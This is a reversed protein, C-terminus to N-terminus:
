RQKAEPKPKNITKHEQPQATIGHQQTIDVHGTQISHFLNKCLRRRESPRGGLGNSLKDCGSPCHELIGFLASKPLCCLAIDVSKTSEAERNISCWPASSSMLSAPRTAFDRLFDHQRFRLKVELNDQSFQRPPAFQLHESSLLRCCNRLDLIESSALTSRANIIATSLVLNSVAMSPALPVMSLKLSSDLILFSIFPSAPNPVSPWSLLDDVTKFCGQLRAESVLRCFRLCAEFILCAFPCCNMFSQRFDPLIHGRHLLTATTSHVTRGTRPIAQSWDSERSGEGERVKGRPLFKFSMQTGLSIYILLQTLSLDMLSIVPTLSSCTSCATGSRIEFRMASLVLLRLRNSWECSFGPVHVLFVIILKHSIVFMQFPCTYSRKSFVVLCFFVCRCSMLFGISFSLHIHAGFRSRMRPFVLSIPKSCGDAGVAFM